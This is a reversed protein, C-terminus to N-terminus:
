GRPPRKFCVKLWRWGAHKMLGRIREQGTVPWGPSHFAPPMHFAARCLRVRELRMEAPLFFPLPSRQDPLLGARERWFGIEIELFGSDMPSSFTREGASVAQAGLYTLFRSPPLLGRM